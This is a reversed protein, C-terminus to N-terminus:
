PRSGMKRHDELLARMRDSSLSSNVDGPELKAPEPAKQEEASKAAEDAKKKRPM